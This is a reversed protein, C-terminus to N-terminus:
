PKPHKCLKCERRGNDPRYYTTEPTWKHGHRCYPLGSDKRRRMNETHTVPELHAPNICLTNHCLHDLELGDPITGVFHEYSVRHARKYKQSGVRGVRLMGYSGTPKVLKGGVWTWCGSDEKKIKSLLRESMDKLPLPNRALTRKFSEVRKQIQEKTQKRIM